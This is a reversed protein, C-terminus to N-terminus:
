VVSFGEHGLPDAVSTYFLIRSGVWRTTPRMIETVLPSILEGFSSKPSPYERQYRATGKRDVLLLNHWSNLIIGERWVTIGTPREREKFSVEAVTRASGDRIDIAISRTVPQRPLPLAM